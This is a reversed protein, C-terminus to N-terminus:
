KTWCTWDYLVFHVRVYCYRFYDKSLFAICRQPLHVRCALISSRCISVQPMQSITRGFVFPWASYFNASAHKYYIIRDQLLGSSSQMAGTLRFRSLKLCLALAHLCLLGLVRLKGLMIFLGAQFLAGQISLEDVTNFFVGGVSVGMLVNKVVGAIIVRKDRLWLVIFRRLILQTSRPFHNAYQKRVAESMVLNSVEAGHQSVENASWVYQLPSHLEKVIKMGAESLRFMAALESATPANPRVAKIAEDPDYLTAGDETSVMQLFDAVDTFEPSQFGINAFYDEVEEIPGAYIIQGEALVIVDDFLSLTEPSPQLLSFIRTQKTSRGNYLIVQIMDYTSAADLGTSIEDGCLVPARSMLM